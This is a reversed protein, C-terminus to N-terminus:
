KEKVTEYRGGLYEHSDVIAMTVLQMATPPKDKKLNGNQLTGAHFVIRLTKGNGMNKTFHLRLYTETENKKKNELFIQEPASYTKYVTEFDKIDVIQNILRQIEDQPKQAAKAKQVRRHKNGMSHYLDKDTAMVKSDFVGVKNRVAAYDDESLNGVQFMAGTPKYDPENARKSIVGWEEKALVAGDMSNRYNGMVAHLIDEPLDAYKGFNPVLAELGPNYKWETPAFKNWDVANGNRDIMAPPNGDPDSKLVEVGEREAGSESLTVVSCECGWGNPPYNASWFPDDFRFAKGHLAIHDDRRNKGALKSVYEWIPRLSAVRMQQRYRGAAYATKMNTDYIVRLRWRVYANEDKTHGAGGYWNEKAMMELMGKKFKDFSEGNAMAKNLLEHIKGVVETDMSHAVTFAHSHEGWKLDNWHDTNINAKKSLFEM